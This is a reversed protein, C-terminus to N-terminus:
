GDWLGKWQRLSEASRPKSEQPSAGHFGPAIEITSVGAFGIAKLGTAVQGFDINGLGLHGHEDREGNNDHLHVEWVPLPLRALYEGVSAGEYCPWKRLRMNLHGVDVLMGYRESGLLPELGARYYDLGAQDLPFDEVGIRLDTGETGSLLEALYPAMRPVDYLTGRSDQTQAADFTCTLLLDGLLECLRLVDGVATDFNGHMVTHLGRDRLHSAIRQPGSRLLEWSGFSITDYGMHAFQDILDLLDVGPEEYNWIAPAYHM